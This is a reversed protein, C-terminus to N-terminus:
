KTTNEFLERLNCPIDDVEAEPKTIGSLDFNQNLEKLRNARFVSQNDFPIAETEKELKLPMLLERGMQDYIVLMKKNQAAHSLFTAAFILTATILIKTKM